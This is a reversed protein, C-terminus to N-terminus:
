QFVESFKRGWVDMIVTDQDKGKGTKEAEVTYMHLRPATYDDIGKDGRHVTNGTMFLVDGPQLVVRVGQNRHSRCWIDLDQQSGVGKDVQRVLEEYAVVEAQSCLYVIISYMVLAVVTVFGRQYTPLDMHAAQLAVPPAKEGKENVPQRNLIIAPPTTVALEFNMANAMATTKEVVIDILKPSLIDTAEDFTTFLYQCRQKDGYDPQYLKGKKGKRREIIPRGRADLKLGKFIVGAYKYCKKLKKLDLAAIADALDPIHMVAVGHRELRAVGDSVDEFGLISTNIHEYNDGRATTLAEVTVKQFSAPFPVAFPGKDLEDEEEEQEEEQEEEEEEAEGDGSGDESGSAVTDEVEESQHEEEEVAGSGAAASAAPRCRKLRRYSRVLQKVSSISPRKAATALETEKTRKAVPQGDQNDAETDTNTNAIEKKGFPLDSTKVRDELATIKDTSSMDKWNPYAEQILIATYKNGGERLYNSFTKSSIPKSSRGRLLNLLEPFPKHVAQEGEGMTFKMNYIDGPKDSKPATARWVIVEDVLGGQQIIEIIDNIDQKSLLIAFQFSLVGSDEKAKVVEERKQALANFCDSINGPLNLM